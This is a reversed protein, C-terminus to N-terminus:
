GSKSAASWGCWAWVSNIRWCNAWRGSAGIAWIISTTSRVRARDQPQGSIAGGRRHGSGDAHAAGPSSRSGAKQQTEASRGAFSRVTEPQSCLNEFLAKATEISPTEGPRLRRYIEVMAEEKSDTREMELTDLIVPTATAATWISSRLSEIESELIKELIEATLRQNKEAIKEKRGPEALETLVARGVLEAPTVPIEKIGAAKLKAILM